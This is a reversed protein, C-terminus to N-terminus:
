TNNSFRRLGGIWSGALFFHRVGLPCLLFKFNLHNKYIVRWHFFCKLVKLYEFSLLFYVNGLSVTYNSWSDKRENWNHAIYYKGGAVPLVLMEGRWKNMNIKMTIFTKILFAITNWIDSDVQFLYFMMLLWEGPKLLYM